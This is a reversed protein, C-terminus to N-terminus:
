HNSFCTMFVARSVNGFYRADVSFVANTNASEKQSNLPEEFDLDFLYSIGLEDYIRFTLTLHTSGVLAFPINCVIREEDGRRYHHNRRRVSRHIYGSSYVRRRIFRNLCSRAPRKAGDSTIGIM